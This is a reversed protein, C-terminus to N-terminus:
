MAAEAVALMKDTDPSQAETSEPYKQRIQKLCDAAKKNDGLMIYAVGAKFLAAPATVANDGAKAADVYKKAADATNGQEMAADAQGMLAIAKTFLDKGSYKGLWKDAEAYNGLQLNAIGAYYKALNGAKTSGYSDIVALLGRHTDDGELAKQYEGSLFYQEAAFLEASARQERPQKYWKYYGFIALAVLLIGVVVGIIIKQNKQIFEETRTIVNGMETNKEEIQEKM